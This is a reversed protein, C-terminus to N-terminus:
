AAGRIVPEQGTISVVLATFDAEARATSWQDYERVFVSAGWTPIVALVTRHWTKTLTATGHPLKVETVGPLIKRRTNAM